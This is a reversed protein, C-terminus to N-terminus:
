GLSELFGLVANFVQQNQPDRVLSHGMSDFAIMQKQMSGLHDYIMQM